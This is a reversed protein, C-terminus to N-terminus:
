KECTLSLSCYGGHPWLVPNPTEIPLSFCLTPTYARVCGRVCPPVVAFMADSLAAAQISPSVRNRRLKAEFFPYQTFHHSNYQEAQALDIAEVCGM